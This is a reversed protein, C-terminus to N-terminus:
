FTADNAKCFLFCKCLKCLKQLSAFSINVQNFKCCIQKTLSFDSYHPIRM